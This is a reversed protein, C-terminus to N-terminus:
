CWLLTALRIEFTNIKSEYHMGKAHNECYEAVYIFM